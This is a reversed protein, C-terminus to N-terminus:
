LETNSIVLFKRNDGIAASSRFPPRGPRWRRPWGRSRCSGRGRRGSSRRYFWLLTLRRATANLEPKGQPTPLQREATDRGDLTRSWGRVAPFRDDETAAGPKQSGRLDESAGRFSQEERDSGPHTITPGQTNRTWLYDTQGQLPGNANQLLFDLFNPQPVRLSLQHFNPEAFM